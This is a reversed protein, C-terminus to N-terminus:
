APRQAVLDILASPGSHGPGESLEARYDVLRLLRWDGFADELLARTYMNESHPPGGTGLAVQDPTYGHLFLLGGPRVAQRLGAFIRTRQDPAAFQIFIAAVVDYAESWDWDFIDGLRFDVEAGAEKALTKAKAQGVPSQDFAVVDLGRGALWVSNRGEGDAVALARGQAPLLGAHDTLFRAPRTGFLYGDAIYRQDWFSSSTDM